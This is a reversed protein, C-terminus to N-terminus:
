NTSCWANDNQSLQMVLVFLALQAKTELDDAKEKEKLICRELVEVQGKLM